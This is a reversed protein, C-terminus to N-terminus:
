EFAEFINPMSSSQAAPATPTRSRRFADVIYQASVAVTTTNPPRFAGVVMGLWKKTELNIVWAGSDGPRSFRRSLPRAIGFQRYFDPTILFHPGRYFHDDLKFGSANAFTVLGVTGDTDPARKVRNKNEAALEIEVQTAPLASALQADNRAFCPNGWRIFSVDPCEQTFEHAPPKTSGMPWYVSSCVSSLVHRCTVGYIDDKTERVLGGVTGELGDSGNVCRGQALAAGEPPVGGPRRGRHGVLPRVPRVFEIGIGLWDQIGLSFVLEKLQSPNPTTIVVRWPFEIRSRRHPLRELHIDIPFEDPSLKDARELCVLADTVRELLIYHDADLQLRLRAAHWFRSADDEPFRRQAVEIGPPVDIFEVPVGASRPFETLFAQLRNRREGCVRRSVDISPPPIRHRRVFEFGSRGIRRRHLFRSVIVACLWLAFVSVAVLLAAWGSSLSPGAEFYWFSALWLSM